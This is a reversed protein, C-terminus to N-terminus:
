FNEKIYSKIETEGMKCLDVDQPQWVRVVDLGAAELLRQAKDGGAQGAGSADTNMCVYVKTIGLGVLIDSKTATWTGCGLSPVAPVNYDLLRLADSPGETLVIHTKRLAKRVQLAGLVCSGVWSGKSNQTKLCGPNRESLLVKVHGYPRGLSDYGPLVAWESGRSDVGYKAEMIGFAYPSIVVGMGDLFNRDWERDSWDVLQFDDFGAYRYENAQIAVQRIPPDPNPILPDFGQADALQNWGGRWNCSPNQCAVYGYGGYKDTLNVLLPKWARGNQHCFPCYAHLRTGDNTCGDLVQNAVTALDQMDAYGLPELNPRFAEVFSAWSM